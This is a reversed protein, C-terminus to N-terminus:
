KNILEFQKELSVDYNAELEKRSKKFFESEPPISLTSWFEPNYAVKLDGMDTGYGGYDVVKRKKKDTEIGLVFVEHRYSVDVKNTNLGLKQQHFANIEKKTKYVRNHYSLYLKGDVNKKYVYVANLARCEIKYIGYNDLGVYLKISGRKGKRGKVRGELIVLDEGDYSTDGIRKWDYKSRLNGQRVPNQRVMYYVSHNKSKFKAFRYDASKRGEAVEIGLLEFITPGRDLVKVYHDVLFRAQDLESSFRRYLMSLKHSSSVTTNKLNKQVLKIYEEPQLVRVADLSVVDEKLVLVKPELKLYEEVTIKVTTFGISSVELTDKLNSKSVLMSFDGDENSSTGMYKEIIGIAVYPIGTNYEDVIKGGITIQEPQAFGFFYLNSFILFLLARKSMYLLRKKKM